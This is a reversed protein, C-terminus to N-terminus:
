EHWDIKDIIRHLKHKVKAPLKGNHWDIKDLTRDQLNWLVGKVDLFVDMDESLWIMDLLAKRVKKVQNDSLVFTDSIAKDIQKTNVDTLSLIATLVKGIKKIVSDSLTIVDALVLAYPLDCVRVESLTLNDSLTKIHGAQSFYLYLTGGTDYVTQAYLAGSGGPTLNDLLKGKHEWNVKDTSTRYYLDDDKAYVMFYVGGSEFMAAHQMWSWEANNQDIYDSSEDLLRTRNVFSTGNASNAYGLSYFYPHATAAMYWMHYVENEYIVQPFETHCAQWGSSPTLVAIDNSWTNGDTGNLRSIFGSWQGAYTAYYDEHYMYYDAGVKVINAAHARLYSGCPNGGYKHIYTDNTFSLANASEARYIAAQAGTGSCGESATGQQGYALYKAGDHIINAIDFGISVSDFSGGVSLVEGNVTLAVRRYISM